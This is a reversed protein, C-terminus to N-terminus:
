RALLAEDIRGERIFYAFIQANRLAKSRMLAQEQLTQHEQQLPLCAVHYFFGGKSPARSVSFIFNTTKISRTIVGQRDASLLPAGARLYHNLFIDAGQEANRADALGVLFELPTGIVDEANQSIQDDINTITGRESGPKTSCGCAIGSLILITLLPATLSSHIMGLNYPLCRLTDGVFEFQQPM